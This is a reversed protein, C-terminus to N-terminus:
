VGAGCDHRPGIRRTHRHAGAAAAVGAPCVSVHWSTPSRMQRQSRASGRPAAPLCWPGHSEIWLHAVCRRGPCAHQQSCMCACRDGHMSERISRTPTGHMWGRGVGVGGRQLCCRSQHGRTRTWCRAHWLCPPRPRPSKAKCASLDRSCLRRGAIRPTGLWSGLQTLQPRCPPLRLFSDPLVIPPSAASPSGAAISWMVCASERERERECVCV